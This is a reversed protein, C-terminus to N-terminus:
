DFLVSCRDYDNFSVINQAWECDYDYNCIWCYSVGLTGCPKDTIGDPPIVNKWTCLLGNSYFIVEDAGAGYCDPYDYNIVPNSWIRDGFFECTSDNPLCFHKQHYPEGFDFQPLEIANCECVEALPRGDPTMPEPENPSGCGIFSTALILALLFRTM